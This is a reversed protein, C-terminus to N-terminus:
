SCLLRWLTDDVVGSDQQSVSHSVLWVAKSCWVCGGVVGRLLSSTWTGSRFVNRAVNKRNRPTIFLMGRLHTWNKNREKEWQYSITWTSSIYETRWEIRRKRIMHKLPTAIEHFSICLLVLSLSRSFATETVMINQQSTNPGTTTITKPPDLSDHVFSFLFM